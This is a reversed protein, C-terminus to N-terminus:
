PPINKARAKTTKEFSVAAVVGRVGEKKMLPSLLL